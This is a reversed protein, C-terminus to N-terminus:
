NKRFRRPVTAPVRVPMFGYSKYDILCVNIHFLRSWLVPALNLFRMYTFNNGLLPNSRCIVGTIEALLNLPFKSAATGDVDYDEARMVLGHDFCDFGQDRERRFDIDVQSDESFLQVPPVVIGVNCNMVNLSLYIVLWTQKEILGM